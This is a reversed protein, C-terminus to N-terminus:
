EPSLDDSAAAIALVGSAAAAATIAAARMSAGGFLGALAAPDSPMRVVVSIEEGAGLNLLRSADVVRQGRGILEVVYNGPDTTVFTFTGRDDTLQTDVIRGFRADRLRIPQQQLPKDSADVALVNIRANAIAPRGAVTQAPQASLSAAAALACALSVAVLLRHM